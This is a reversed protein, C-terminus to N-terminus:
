FFATKVGAFLMVLSFIIVVTNSSFKSLFFAGIVGGTLSGILVPFIVAADFSGSAGYVIGSLVSMPLIILIATAHSEKKKYGLFGDLMPVIVMGGGGGFLGNIIGAAAGTFVSLRKRNSKMDSKYLNTM